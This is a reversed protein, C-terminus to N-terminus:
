LGDVTREAATRLLRKLKSFANEILNLDPSYPASVATPLRGRRDGGADRGGPPVAPPGDGGRGGGGCNPWGRCQRLEGLLGVENDGVSRPAVGLGAPRQEEAGVQRQHRALRGHQLHPREGM